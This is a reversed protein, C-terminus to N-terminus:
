EKSVSAIRKEREEWYGGVYQYYDQGDVDKALRFWRPTWEAGTKERKRREERQKEELTYKEAAATKADGKELASRDLRLRSDTKPLIPIM